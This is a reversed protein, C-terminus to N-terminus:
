RKVPRIAGCDANLWKGTQSMQVREPKGEVQTVITFNGGAGMGIGQKAMMVQMMKRQDPPMKALSDQMQKMAAWVALHAAVPVLRTM